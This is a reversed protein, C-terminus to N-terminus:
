WYKFVFHLVIYGVGTWFGVTLLVGGLIFAWIALTNTNM